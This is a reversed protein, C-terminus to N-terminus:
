IVEDIIAKLEDKTIGLGVLNKIEAKFEKVLKEKYVKVEETEVSRVFVGKGAQTEVYGLLELERYAKQITNPNLVLDSSLQRVSPLKDGSVLVEKFILRKVQEVIQTNISVPSNKDIQIM